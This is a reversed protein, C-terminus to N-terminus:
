AVQRGGRWVGKIAPVHEYSQVRVLDARKGVAIEGRDDMGVMNAPGATVMAIADPLSIGHTEALIFPAHIMSIPVYDSALGDLLGAVALESAAVNGSHSGGKVVNPSGMITKMGHTRATEAADRTTPFESIKIGEAHGQDVHETTTDDHSALPIGRQKCEEIVAKRNQDSFNKQREILGDVQADLEDATYIRGYYRKWKDLDRWQRQGPTHDMVSVLALMPHDIIEALENLVTDSAVEARIHLRHDAKMLDDLEPNGLVEEALRLADKRGPKGLHLDGVVLSDFVTTVGATALMRDHVQFAAMGPWNVGPRPELHKELNDTHIDVLGPILFDGECDLAHALGSVGEDVDRIIGEDVRVTGSFSRDRTVITANTFILESAMSGSNVMINMM